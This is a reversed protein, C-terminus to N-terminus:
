ARPNETPESELPTATPLTAIGPNADVLHITNAHTFVMATPPLDQLQRREPRLERTPQPTPADAVTRPWPGTRIADLLAPSPQTPVAIPATLAQEARKRRAYAITSPYPGTPEEPTAKETLEALLLRRDAGLYAAAAAADDANGLRMFGVAANGRGLRERVHPPITRYLLVLGTATTECADTLRDLVDGRLKEAGCLFVTHGWPHQTPSQRLLHTVVTTVYTGLVKNTLVGAKRDLSIVKLRAPPLHVAEAGLDDLKNLQSELTWARELVVRDAATRGFLTTLRALEAETLLGARLDDRPDGVQALARLAATIRAIRPTGGLVSVVRELISNDISTDRVTSEAETANVVVSLVDALASPSLQAGLDFRRLDAPLVWVLPDDGAVRLLDRAVAGESLDLVTVQSGAALRAAGMLTVAASWGALTGGAVDIRDVGPPVPVPHWERQAEYAARQEEWRERARTYGDEAEARRQEIRAVERDRRARDARRRIRMAQEGQWIAWGTIGAIVACALLGVLAFPWHLWGLATLAVLLVAGAGAGAATYKLPRNLLTEGEYREADERWTPKAHVHPAPPRPAPGPDPHALDYRWGVFLREMVTRDM